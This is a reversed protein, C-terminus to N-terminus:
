VREQFETRLRGKLWTRGVTASRASYLVYGLLVWGLGLPAKSASYILDWVPTGTSLRSFDFLMTPMVLLGIVLPVPSAWGFLRRRLADAGFMVMGVALVLYSLAGLYFGLMLTVSEFDAAVHGDKLWWQMVVSAVHMALALGSVALGVRGKRGLIDAYGYHFAALGVLLLASWAVEMRGYDTGDLGFLTGYRDTGTSGHTFVYFVLASGIFLLGGLATALAGLRAVTSSKM